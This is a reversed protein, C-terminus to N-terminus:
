FHLPVQTLVSSAGDAGFSSEVHSFVVFRELIVVGIVIGMAVAAAMQVRFPQVDFAIPFPFFTNATEIGQGEM